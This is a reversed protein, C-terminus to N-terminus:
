VAEKDRLPDPTWEPTGFKASYHRRIGSLLSGEPAGAFFDIQRAAAIAQITYLGPIQCNDPIYSQYFGSTGIRLVPDGKEDAGACEMGGYVQVPILVGGCPAPFYERCRARLPRWVQDPLRSLSGAGDFRGLGEIQSLILCAPLGKGGCASLAERISQTYPDAQAKDSLLLGDSLVWLADARDPLPGDAPTVCRIVLDLTKSQSGSLSISFTYSRQTEEDAPYAWDDQCFTWFFQELRKKRAILGSISDLERAYFSLGENNLAENMNQSMSCLFEQIISLNRGMLVIHLQRSDPAKSAPHEPEIAAPKETAATKSAREEVVFSGFPM